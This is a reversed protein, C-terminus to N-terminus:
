VKFILGVQTVSRGDTEKVVLEVPDLSVRDGVVPKNKFQRSLFESLTLGACDEPFRVGYAVTVDRCLADGNLTFDGFFKREVLEGLAPEAAFLKSLSEIRGAPSLLYVVDSPALVLGQDGLLGNGRFVGAVKTGDVFPMGGVALGDAPADKTVVFAVLEYNAHQPVDIEVRRVPEQRPPIELKLLRALPAVTWGQLVLSVLVVFFAVDFLMGAYQVGEMLPFIALVIPVAGRLGVWAIFLSERWPMRFPTLCVFVAVPRAVFILVLAIALAEPAFPLLESPTALLGLVLFM